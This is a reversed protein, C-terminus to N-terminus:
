WDGTNEEIGKQDFLEVDVNDENETFSVVSFKKGSAIPLQTFENATVEVVDNIKIDMFALGLKAKLFSFPYSFIDLYRDRVTEATPNPNDPLLSKVYVEVTKSQQNNNLSNAILSTASVSRWQQTIERLDSMESIGYNLIVKRVVEEANINYEIGVNTNDVNISQTAMGLPKIRTIFWKGNKMFLKLLCTECIKSIVDRYTEGAYDGQTVPTCFDIPIDIEAATDVFSDEDYFDPIDYFGSSYLIEYIVQIPNKNYGEVTTTANSLASGNIFNINGTGTQITGVIAYDDPTLNSPLTSFEANTDFILDMKDFQINAIPLEYVDKTNKNYIFGSVIPSVDFYDSAGLPSGIGDHTIYHGLGDSFQTLLRVVDGSAGSGNPLLYGTLGVSAPDIYTKTTTNSGAASNLTTIRAYVIGTRNLDSFFNGFRWHRNTSDSASTSYHVVNALFGISKGVVFARPYSGVMTAEADSPWQAADNLEVKKDLFVSADVYNFTINLDNFNLSRLFGRFCLQFNEAKIEGVCRYINFTANGISGDSFDADFYNNENCVDISGSQSPTFGYIVENSSASISPSSEVIGQYQVNYSTDVDPLVRWGCHISSVFYFREGYIVSANPDIDVFNVYLRKKQTDYWIAKQYPGSVCAFIGAYSEAIVYRADNFVSSIEVGIKGIPRDDWDIYYVSGSLNIWTEDLLFRSGIHYFYNVEVDNKLLNAAYTM